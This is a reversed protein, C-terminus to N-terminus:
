IEKWDTIKSLPRFYGKICNPNQVCIQIHNKECIDTGQYIPEGERYVARVTDFPQERTKRKMLHITNIVACDLYRLLLDCSGDVSKNQPFEDGSKDTTQKLSNYGLQMLKLGRSNLLDWCNGLNIVCGLVFPKAVKKKSLRPNNQIEKAFELARDPNNEWFYIGPGLWDYKNNSPKLRKKGALVAEGLEEDCGHFGLILHSLESYM